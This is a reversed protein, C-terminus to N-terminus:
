IIELYIQNAGRDTAKRELFRQGDYCIQGSNVQPYDYVIESALKLKFRQKRKFAKLSV